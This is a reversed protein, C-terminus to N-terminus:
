KPWQGPPVFIMGSLWEFNKLKKEEITKKDNPNGEWHFESVKDGSGVFTHKGGRAIGFWFPVNELKKLGSLDEKTKSESSPRYDTIKDDAKIGYYPKGKDILHASYSHESNGDEPKKTDPNFYIANWGDKKLESALVTGKAGNSVVKKEIDNWRNKLGANEYAPKLNDLAWGICSSERLSPPKEGNKVNDALWKKREDGTLSKFESHDGYYRGIGTKDISKRHDDTKEEISKKGSKSIKTGEDKSIKKQEDKKVKEPTKDKKESKITFSSQLAQLTENGSPNSENSRSQRAGQAERSLALSDGHRASRLTTTGATQAPQRIQQTTSANRPETLRNRESSIGTMTSQQGSRNQRIRESPNTEIQQPQRIAEDTM